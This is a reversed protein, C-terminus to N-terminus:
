VIVGVDDLPQAPEGIVTTTVTFGSGFPVAVGELGVIQLSFEIEMLKLESTDLVVNLQITLWLPTIPADSPLPEKIAWFKTVVLLTGPV